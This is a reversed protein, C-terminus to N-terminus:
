GGTILRISSLFIGQGRTSFSRRMMSFLSRADADGLWNLPNDWVCTIPHIHDNVARILGLLFKIKETHSLQEFPLFREFAFSDKRYCLYPMGFNDNQVNLAVVDLGLERLYAILLGYFMPQERQRNVIYQALASCQTDVFPLQNGVGSVMSDPSPSLLWLTQLTQRLTYAEQWIPTALIQPLAFQTNRIPFPRSDVYRYQAGDRILTQRGDCIVAEHLVRTFIGEQIVDISYMLNSYQEDAIRITITTPASVGWWSFRAVTAEAGCAIMHLLKLADFVSTKGWGSEREIWNFRAFDLALDKVGKFNRITIGAIM